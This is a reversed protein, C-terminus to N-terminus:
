GHTVRQRFFDIACMTAGSGIAAGIFWWAPDDVDFFLCAGFSALSLLFLGVLAWEVADLIRAWNM